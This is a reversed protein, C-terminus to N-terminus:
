PDALPCFSPQDTPAAAPTSTALPRAASAGNDLAWCEAADTKARSADVPEVSHDKESNSPAALRSRPLPPGYLKMGTMATSSVGPGVSMYSVCFPATTLCSRLVPATSHRIADGDFSLKLVAPQAIALAPAWRGISTHTDISLNSLLPRTRAISTASPLTTHCVRVSSAPSAPGAIASPLTYTPSSPKPFAGNVRPWAPMIVARSALVPSISHCVRVCGFGLTIAAVQM